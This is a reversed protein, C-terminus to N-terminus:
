AKGKLQLLNRSYRVFIRSQVEGGGLIKKKKKGKREEERKREGKTKQKSDKERYGFLRKVVVVIIYLAPRLVVERTALRPKM